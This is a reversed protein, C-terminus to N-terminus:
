YLKMSAIACKREDILLGRAVLHFQVQYITAFNDPVAM